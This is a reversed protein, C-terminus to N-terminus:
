HQLQIFNLINGSKFILDQLSMKVPSNRYELSSCAAAVQSTKEQRCAPFFRPSECLLSPSARRRGKPNLSCIKTESLTNPISLVTNAWEPIASYQAYLFKWFLIGQCQGGPLPPPVGIFEQQPHAARNEM